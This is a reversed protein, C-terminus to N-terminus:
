APPCPTVAKPPQLTALLEDFKKYQRIFFDGTRRRRHARPVHAGFSHAAPLADRAVRRSQRRRSPFPVRAVARTGRKPEVGSM